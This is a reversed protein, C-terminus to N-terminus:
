WGQTTLDPRLRVQGNQCRVAGTRRDVRALRHDLRKLHLKPTYGPYSLILYSILTFSNSKRGVFGVRQARTTM